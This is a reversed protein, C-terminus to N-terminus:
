ARAGEMVDMESPTPITRTLRFGAAELLAQYEVETRERGGTMVLMNLDMFKHFSPTNGPPVRAEVLLLKGQEAMARHCNKLIAVSHEEDWDHIIWKLLYADGGSPVSTFADGAVVECREALGEAEIRRRAGAIVHPLDFLVGKMGPNAKLISTILSGDGGGVDVINGISSFDYSTVIAANVVSSFSAMAEDFIRGDEPHQSRYQWVDLGFLHDFAIEGTKVSHLVEGWAPYHDEGLEAIAFARLSGPLDSRLTAALPTLAFCGQEDEAFVGVSALARLVRYLSPAHMGTAQALEKSSQPKDKLLDAIGLKAAIYIARSMWLGAIMQLMAVPPPIDVSTTRNPESM